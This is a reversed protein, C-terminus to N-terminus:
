EFLEPQQSEKKRIWEMETTKTFDVLRAGVAKWGMIEVVKEL